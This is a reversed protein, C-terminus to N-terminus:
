PQQVGYALGPPRTHPRGETVGSSQTSGGGAVPQTIAPTSKRGGGGPLHRGPGHDGGVGALRLAVFVLVLVILIILSMKVWRRRTHPKSDAYRPPEAM